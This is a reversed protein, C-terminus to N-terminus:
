CSTNSTLLTRGNRLGHWIIKLGDQEKTLPQDVDPVFLHYRPGVIHGRSKFLALFRGGEWKIIRGGVGGQWRVVKM